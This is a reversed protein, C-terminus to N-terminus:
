GSGGRPGQPETTRGVVVEIVEEKPRRREAWRREFAVPVKQTRREGQRREVIIEVDERGEFAKVLLDALYARARPVIIRVKGPNEPHGPNGVPAVFSMSLSDM